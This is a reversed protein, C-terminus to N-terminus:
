TTQKRVSRLALACLLPAGTSSIMPFPQAKAARRSSPVTSSSAALPHPLLRLMSYCCVATVKTQLRTSQQTNCRPSRAISTNGTTCPKQRLCQKFIASAQMVFHTTSDGSDGTCRLIHMRHLSVMHHASAGAKSGCHWVDLVMHQHLM